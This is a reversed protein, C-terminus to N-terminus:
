NDEDHLLEEAKEIHSLAKATKSKNQSQKDSIIKLQLKETIINTRGISAMIKEFIEAEEKLEEYIIETVKNKSFGKSSYTIKSELKKGKYSGGLNVNKIQNAQLYTGLTEALERKTKNRLKIADLLVKIEQEIKLYQHLAINFVEINQSDINSPPEVHLQNNNDEHMEDNMEDNMEANLEDNNINDFSNVSEEIINDIEAEIRDM